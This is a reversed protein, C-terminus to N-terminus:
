KRRIPSGKHSGGLGCLGPFELDAVIPGEKVTLFDVEPAQAAPIGQMAPRDGFAVDPRQVVHGCPILRM